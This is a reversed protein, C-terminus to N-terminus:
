RIAVTRCSDRGPASLYSHWMLRAKDLQKEHEKVRQEHEGLHRVHQEAWAAGCALELAHRNIKDTTVVSMHRLSHLPLSGAAKASTYAASRFPAKDFGTGSPRRVVKTAGTIWLRSDIQEVGNSQAMRGFSTDDPGASRRWSDDAAHLASAAARSLCWGSQPYPRRQAHRSRQDNLSPWPRTNPDTAVSATTVNRGALSSSPVPNPMLNAVLLRRTHDLAALEDELAPVNVYVDDDLYCLWADHRRTLLFHHLAFRTKLRQVAYAARQREREGKAEAAHANYGSFSDNVVIASSPLECRLRENAHSDFSDTLLGVRDSTWRLWTGMSSMM